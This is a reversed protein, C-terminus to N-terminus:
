TFPSAVGNELLFEEVETVSKCGNNICLIIGADAPIKPYLESCGALTLARQTSKIDMHAGICLAVLKYKSPHPRTGNLIPYVYNQNLNSHFIIDPTTLDPHSAFYVNLFDSLSAYHTEEKRNHLFTQYSQNDKSLLDLEQFLKTTRADEM